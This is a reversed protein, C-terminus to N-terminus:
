LYFLALGFLAVGGLLTLGGALLGLGLWLPKPTPTARSAQQPNPKLTARSPQQPSPKPTAQPSPPAIEETSDIVKGTSTVWKGALGGPITIGKPAGFRQARAWDPLAPESRRSASLAEAADALARATPRRESAFQLCEELLKAAIPLGELREELFEGYSESDLAMALQFDVPRGMFFDEGTLLQFLTIALGYVDGAPTNVGFALLEPPGYGPTLMVAGATTRAHRAVDPAKAIGFDLLRLSGDPLVRINDPKIDRHVLRLPQGTTPHPRSFAYDLARAVGAVMELAVRPPLLPTHTYRSLDTGELYEAVLTLKGDIWSLRHSTLISPHDLLALLAAEDRLRKVEEANPDRVRLVKLAVKRASGDPRRETAVYVEGYGGQGLAHHIEFAINPPM